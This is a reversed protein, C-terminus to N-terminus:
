LQALFKELTENDEILLGREQETPIRCTEKKGFFRYRNRAIWRYVIDRIFAPVIRFISITAWPFPLQQAIRLAAASRKFLRNDQYLFITDVEHADIGLQGLLSQGAQSQNAVYVFKRARDRQIVFDVSGNCLNCHGDFIIIGQSM